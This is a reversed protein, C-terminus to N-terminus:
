REHGTQKVSEFKHLSMPLGCIDRRGVTHSRGIVRRGSDGVVLDWIWICFKTDYFAQDAFKNRIFTQQPERASPCDDIFVNFYTHAKCSAVRLHYM